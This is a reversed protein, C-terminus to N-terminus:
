LAGVGSLRAGKKSVPPPPVSGRANAVARWGKLRARKRLYRRPPSRAACTPWLAGVESM